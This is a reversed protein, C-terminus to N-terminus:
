RLPVDVWSPGSVSISAGYPNADFYLPDETDLVLALRHGAPVNWATAPLALDLVQRGGSLWTYPAHTVLRGTGLLDVDYLYAVLTGTAAAPTVTLHVRPSGRM